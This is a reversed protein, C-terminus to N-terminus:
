FYGKVANILESMTFPKMLYQSAGLAMARKIYTNDTLASLFIFPLTPATQRVKTLVTFGDVGPMMVDCIILDPQFDYVRQLGVQGDEAGCVEFNEMSLIILIDERIVEEDEIVLIRHM